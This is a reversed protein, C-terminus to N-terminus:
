LKAKWAKTKESQIATTLARLSENLRAKSDVTLAGQYNREARKAEEM